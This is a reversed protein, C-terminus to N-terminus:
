LGFLQSIPIESEIMGKRYMWDVLAATQERDIDRAEALLPATARVGAASARAQAPGLSGKAVAKGGAAPHKEIAAAGRYAAQLFRHLLSPDGAIRASGVFVLEDYAPIGLETVPTVIPDLGRAALAEGEVNGSGGFIADARGSALGPVLHYGLSKLEVDDLDLGATELVAELFYKQFAVGPYGITKGKLDAIESIGSQPLWIMAMTAIPIVSGLTVIPLGEDQALVVEPEQSVAIDSAGNAVYTISLSPAAPELIEVELGADAFYGLRDALLIGATEPGPYGNLTVTLSARSGAPRSHQPGHRDPEQTREVETDTDSGTGCGMLLVVAVGTALLHSHNM